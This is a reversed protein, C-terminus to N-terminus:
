DNMDAKYCEKSCYDGDCETGCYSCENEKQDEPTALKWNDYDCM